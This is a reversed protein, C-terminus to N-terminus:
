RSRKKRPCNSKPREGEDERRFFYRALFALWVLSAVAWTWAAYIHHSEKVKPIFDSTMRTAGALVLLGAVWRLWKLNGSLLDHRGAHGLVVRTAVTVTMLGLGGAFFLHLSGIRATPWLAASACGAMLGVLALRAVNGGTSPAKAKRFVPTELAFWVGIVVARLIQGLVPYGYVELAFSAVIHVGWFVASGVRAWWGAPPSPSDDFSHSSAQGLFRPLLYPGIGMLPLLLFGQFLWLKAWTVGVLGMWRGGEWALCAASVVAGFLGAIALAFGPPPTDRHGFVWRAVMGVMLVGVMVAFFGDAEAVRGRWANAVVGLWLALLGLWEVALWRRNGVLRPFATGLFGLVFAGMFGGVVLRPHADVPNFGLWGGYHLPWVMVGAVGALVGLPFFVRYPEELVMNWWRRMAAVTQGPKLGLNM